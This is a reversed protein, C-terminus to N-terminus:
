AANAQPASSMAASAVELLTNALAVAEECTVADQVAIDLFVAAPDGAYARMASVKAPRFHDSALKVSRTLIDAPWYNEVELEIEPVNVGATILEGDLGYVRMQTNPKGQIETRLGLEACRDLLAQIRQDPSLTDSSPTAQTMSMTITDQENTPNRNEADVPAVTPAKRMDPTHDDDILGLDAHAEQPRNM